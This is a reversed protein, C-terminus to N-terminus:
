ARSRLVDVERGYGDVVDDLHEPHGLTLSTLDYMGDGEGAESWDLVGTVEEDDVFVHALQLDGHSFM